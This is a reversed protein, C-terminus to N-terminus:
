RKMKLAHSLIRFLRVRLAVMKKGLMEAMKTSMTQALESAKVENDM